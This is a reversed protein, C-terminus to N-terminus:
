AIRTGGDRRPDGAVELRGDDHCLAAGAGGFFMSNAHMPEDHETWGGPLPLDEEHAISAIAGDGDHRVHLRPAAVAAALDDGGFLRILVQVLATTIRDAGPSGIAMREGAPGLVVTPAMNSPLHAGVEWNHLGHPNLEQEGLCNNLWVGTGAPMVGSGYGSSATIACAMGEDDVASVHITSPSSLGADFDGREVSQLLALGAAHRDDAADLATVRRSLVIDQVQILRDVFADDWASPLPGGRLMLQLMASLTVGGIAPPPNTAVFWDGHSTPLVSTLPERVVPQYEALDRATLLGGNAQVEDVIRRGVDGHTFAAVGDHAIAAMTHELGDIVIIGDENLEGDDTHIAARSAPHWGYLDDHVYRLYYVSASSLRFGAAAAVRAPEWVQAWPLRGHRQHALALGMPTGPVAVSGHGISMAVGGGYGTWLDRVGSGRPLPDLGLGPMSCNADIVETHDPTAITIYAGGALSCIVSETVMATATTAIAVDVANGGAEAVRAGADAARTNPAAVAATMQGLISCARHPLPGARRRHGRSRCIRVTTARRWLVDDHEEDDGADDCEDHAHAEDAPTVLVVLLEEVLLM